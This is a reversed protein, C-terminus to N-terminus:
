KMGNLRAALRSKKRAAANRHITGKAAVQDLLKSMAKYTEAAKAKDGAAVATAFAKTSDKIRGKRWRNRANAQASQRIRKRASASHAMDTVEKEITGYAGFGLM